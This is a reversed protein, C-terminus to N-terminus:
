KMTRVVRFGIFDHRFGLYGYKWRATSRARYALGFCNGGRIVRRPKKIASQIGLPNKQDNESYTGYEDFCYEYINGSMDFLGLENGNKEGVGHIHKESNSLYWAVSDINNSGSYLYNKSEMGGRAAFEWEAETPLRYGDNEINLIISDINGSYCKVCNSKQSLLNCFAIAEYWSIEVIPDNKNRNTIKQPLGLGTEMWDNQTVLYRSIYFSNLTVNHIPMEDPDGSLSGMKYTGGIIKVLEM